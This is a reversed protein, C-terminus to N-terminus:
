NIECGQDACTLYRLLFSAEHEVAYCYLRQVHLTMGRVCPHTPSQHLGQRVHRSLTLDYLFYGVYQVTYFVAHVLIVKDTRNASTIVCDFRRRTHLSINCGVAMTKITLLRCCTQMTAIIERGGKQLDINSTNTFIIGM